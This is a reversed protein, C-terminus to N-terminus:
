KYLTPIIFLSTICKCFAVDPDSIKSILAETKQLSHIIEVEDFTETMNFPQLLATIFMSRIYIYIDCCEIPKRIDQRLSYKTVSM